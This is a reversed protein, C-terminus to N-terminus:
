RRPGIGIVKGALLSSPRITALLIEMIRTAKEEVVGQAVFSGYIGLSVYLLIGVALGALLNQTQEPSTPELIQVQIQAGAIASALAASPLGAATLRAALVAKELAAEVPAQVSDKVVVTPSTAPGIVLVDLTGATVQTKGAGADAVDTVTVATGM